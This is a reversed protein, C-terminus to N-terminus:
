SMILNGSLGRPRRASPPLGLFARIEALTANDAIEVNGDDRIQVPAKVFGEYNVTIRIGAKILVELATAVDADGCISALLTAFKEKDSIGCSIPLTAQLTNITKQTEATRQKKELAESIISDIREMDGEEKYPVSKIQIM